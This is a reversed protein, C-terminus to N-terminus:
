WGRLLPVWAFVNCPEMTCFWTYGSVWGAMPSFPGRSPSEEGCLPSGLFGEMPKDCVVWDMSCKRCTRAPSTGLVGSKERIPCSCQFLSGAECALLGGFGASPQFCPHRALTWGKLFQPCFPPVLSWAVAGSSHGTPSSGWPRGRRGLSSGCSTPSTKRCRWSAGRGHVRAFISDLRSAWTEELVGPTTNTRLNSFCFLPKAGVPCSCFRLPVPSAFCSLFLFTWTPSPVALGLKALSPRCTALRRAALPPAM